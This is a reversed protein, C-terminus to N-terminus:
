SMDLNTGVGDKRAQQVVADATMVDQIATGVSKFFSRGTPVTAGEGAAFTTGMLDLEKKQDDTLQALDGVTVADATDIWVKLNAITKDSIGGVECMHPTYSGIGNVHCHEPLDMIDFLPTNTNTTTCVCSATSLTEKVVQEDGLLVIDVTDLPTMTEALHEQQLTAKLATARPESRNIITVKPITNQRLATAICQIHLQAQLGAGFVVLHELPKDQFVFQTALASGAATRAATLYTGGMVAEVIGTDANLHLITAQVTSLNHRTPNEGRVSAIKCGVLQSNDAKDLSAPKFLTWDASPQARDATPGYYPLGLRPPVNTKGQALATLALRNAELCVPLPLCRKVQSESLLLM